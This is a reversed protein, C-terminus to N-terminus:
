TGAEILHAMDPNMDFYRQEASTQDRAVVVDQETFGSRSLYFRRVDHAVFGFLVSFCLQIVGNVPDGLGLQSLGLGLAVMLVVTVASMLWLRHYAAWFFTFIFAPWSFGERVFVIDKDPDLGQRRMHVTYVRM